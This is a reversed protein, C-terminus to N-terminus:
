ELGKEKAQERVIKTLMTQAYRKMSMREKAAVLRLRDHDKSDLDIRVPLLKSEAVPEAVAEMKKPSRKKAMQVVGILNVRM